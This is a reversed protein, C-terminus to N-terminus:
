AENIEAKEIIRTRSIFLKISLLLYDYLKKRLRHNQLETV